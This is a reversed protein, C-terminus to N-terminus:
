RLLAERAERFRTRDRACIEQHLDLSREVCSTNREDASRRATRSNPDRTRIAGLREPAIHHDRASERSARESGV